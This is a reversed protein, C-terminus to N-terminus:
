VRQIARESKKQVSLNDVSQHASITKRTAYESYHASNCVDVYLDRLTNLMNLSSRSFLAATFNIIIWLICRGNFKNRVSCKHNCALYIVILLHM